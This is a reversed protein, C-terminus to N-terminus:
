TGKKITKCKILMKPLMKGPIKQRGATVPSPRLKMPPCRCRCNRWPEVILINGIALLGGHCVISSLVDLFVDAIVIVIRDFTDDLM